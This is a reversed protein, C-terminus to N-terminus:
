YRKRCAISATQWRYLLKCYVGGPKGSADLVQLDRSTLAYSIPNGFRTISNNDWLVGYNRTSLVFPIAVDMNHQALQVDEGNYNMQANQHQGLGYFAEDTSPNFQQEIAYYDHGESVYKRLERKSENLMLAGKKDSFSVAGTQLSITATVETTKLLLQNGQQTITFKVSGPKATIMLSTGVHVAADPLATVHVIRDSMVQLQVRQANGTQPTVIVGDTTKEFHSAADAASAAICTLMLAIMFKINLM